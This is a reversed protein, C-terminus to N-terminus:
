QSHRVVLRVLHGHSKFETQDDLMGTTLEFVVGEEGARQVIASAGEAVAGVLSYVARRLHDHRGPEGHWDLQVVFVGEEEFRSSTVRLLENSARELHPLLHAHPDEAVWAPRAMHDLFERVGPVFADGSAVGAGKEDVDWRRDKVGGVM